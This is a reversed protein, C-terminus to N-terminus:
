GQNGWTGAPCGSHFILYQRPLIPQFSRLHQGSLSLRMKQHLLRLLHPQPIHSMNVCLNSQRRIRFVPLYLCHRLHPNCSRQLLSQACDMPMRFNHYPIRLYCKGTAPLTYPSTSNCATPVTRAIAILTILIILLKLAM